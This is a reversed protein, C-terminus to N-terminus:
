EKSKPFFCSEADVEGGDKYIEPLQPRGGLLNLREIRKHEPAELDRPLLSRGEGTVLRKEGLEKKMAEIFDERYRRPMGERMSATPYLQVLSKQVKKKALARTRHRGEHGTINPLYEPFKNGIELFPVDNFGGKIRALYRIYEPHTMPPLGRVYEFRENMEDERTDPDPFLRVAFREFDAPNMTMLAKANDGGFARRLADETYMRELHPIEDAARQLRKVGYEGERQRLYEELQKITSGGKAMFVTEADVEGGHEYQPLGEEKIQNRLSENIPFLHAKVLHGTKTPIEYSYLDTKIGHKKGIKNLYEPLIKDYFGKMGEGGVKLDQGELLHKGMVPKAQLLKNAAEKGIYDELQSEDTIERRMVKRRNHDWADLLKAEPDYAISDIHKSLDYRDAQMNGPTIVIGNYNGMAAEHLLHKLALEHWSKKHPADPVGAQQPLRGMNGQMANEAAAESSFGSFREGDVYPEFTQGNSDKVRFVGNQDQQITYPKKSKDVYGKKRGAQHWDSQLEELHLMKRGRWDKRDSMRLHALVNPEGGWHQSYYDDQGSKMFERMAQDYLEPEKYNQLNPKKEPTQLLVERYNEADPQSWDEYMPTDIKKKKVTPAPHKLLHAMFEAKSMKQQPLSIARDTVEESRFGPQKSAEAMFEAPMGKGRPISLAAKELPSYMGEKTLALRMVDQSPVSGGKAKGQDPQSMKQANQNEKYWRVIEAFDNANALANRPANEKLDSFLKEPVKKLANRSIEEATRPTFVVPAPQTYGLMESMTKQLNWGIPNKLLPATQKPPSLMGSIAKIASGLGRVVPAVFTEPYVNELAQKEALYDRYDPNSMDPQTQLVSRWRSSGGDAKKDTPLVVPKGAIKETNRISAQRQADREARIM